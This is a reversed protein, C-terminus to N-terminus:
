QLLYHKQTEIKPNQKLYEGSTQGIKKTLIDTYIKVGAGGRLMNVFNQM